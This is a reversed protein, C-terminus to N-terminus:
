GLLPTWNFPVAAGLTFSSGTQSLNRNYALDHAFATAWKARLAALATLTQVVEGPHIVQVYPTWVTLFGAQGVKLCLDVDSLSDGFMDEDLGGVEQFLSSGIMLCAACVASYNQDAILRQQYGFADKTEGAFAASVGGDFGLLLGAQTVNGTADTLKVGVVGIEPRQAHNLLTEIWNPNVIEADSDLLVLYEGKAQQSAANYLAPMNIPQESRLVRLKTWGQEAHELWDQMAADQSSNDVVLVEYNIYRTRLQLNELCRQLQALNDQCALIVSVLPREPHRYDIRYVRPYESTVLPQYGRTALHRVLALREHPNEELVPASCILLPEDLHALWGMGGKEIIRLLLDFEIADSFNASYGGVERLVDRRILWHRAMLAPVSQLLDLNFGPRWASRLAGNGDRHIEDAFVARCDPTKVLELALRLLGAPTFQSGTEALLLWASSSQMAVQNLKDVYHAKNVKVFHLIDQATSAVPPEGTTFVTIKFSRYQGELLSDLTVQLKEMDNDLDLLLIGFEPGPGVRQLYSTVVSAQPLSANRAKLWGLVQGSPTHALLEGRHTAGIAALKAAWQQMDGAVAEEGAEELRGALQQVVDRNFVSLDMAQWLRNLITQATDNPHQELLMAQRAWIGELEPLQIAGAPLGHMLLELETLVNFFTQNYFPMEVFQIPTFRRVPGTQANTWHSTFIFGVELSRGSRICDSMAEMSKLASLQRSSRDPLFTDTAIEAFADAYRERADIAQADQADLVHLVNSKHESDYYNGERVAYPIPLIRAKASALMFYVHSIELWEFHTDSPLWHLWRVVLETRCVAYFPPIFQNMYELAREAGCASSYDELVRRERRFYKVSDAHTVYMLCYGHCLGYDDNSQLYAVSDALGDRLLFDDVAAFAMFPTRVLAVGYKLKAPLESYTFQPVHHYDVKPFGAAIGEASVASSDLVILEIEFERYYTLARRLFDPRGHTIVVLTLSNKTHEYTSVTHGQM